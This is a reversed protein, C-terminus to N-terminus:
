VHARWRGCLEEPRLISPEADAEDGPRTGSLAARLLTWLSRDRVGDLQRLRAAAAAQLGPMPEEAAPGARLIADVVDQADAGRPPLAGAPVLALAKPM